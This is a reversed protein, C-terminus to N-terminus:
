ERRHIIYFVNRKNKYFVFFIDAILKILIYVLLLNALFFFTALLDHNM